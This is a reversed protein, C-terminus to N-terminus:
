LVNIRLGQVPDYGVNLQMRDDLALLQRAIWGPSKGPYQRGAQRVAERWPATSDELHIYRLALERCASNYADADDKAIAGKMRATNNSM